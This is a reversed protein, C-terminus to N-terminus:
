SRHTSGSRVMYCTAGLNKLGVLATYDRADHGPDHGLGAASM